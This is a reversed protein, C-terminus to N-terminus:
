PHPGRPSATLLKVEAEAMKGAHLTYTRMEYRTM